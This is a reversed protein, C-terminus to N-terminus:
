AAQDNTGAQETKRRNNPNQFPQLREVATRYARNVTGQGLGTLRAIQPFSIGELRLALVQLTDVPKRPRAM